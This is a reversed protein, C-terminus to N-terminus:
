ARRCMLVGAETHMEFTGQAAIEDAVIREVAAVVDPWASPDPLSPAYFEECSAIFRVIPDPETLVIRARVVDTEVSVFEAGLYGPANGLDFRTGPRRLEDCGSAAGILEPVRYHHDPGNTAVIVVGDPRVVRALEAVAAPIDEVHYLFHLALVVDAVGSQLPLAQVDGAVGGGAERVMGPSQDVAVLDLRVPREALKRVYLGPGCGVDVVCNGDHLDLHDLVWDPFRVHPTQYRYLAVRDLFKTGDAYATRLRRPDASPPVAAAGGTM